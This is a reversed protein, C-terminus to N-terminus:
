KTFELTGWKDQFFSAETPIDRVIAERGTWFAKAANFQGAADPFNVGADFGITLGPAPKLPSLDTLPVALEASCGKGDADPRFALKAAKLPEVV